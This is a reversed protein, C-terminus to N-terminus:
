APCHSRVVEFGCSEYLPRLTEKSTLMVYPTKHLYAQNLATHVLASIPQDAALDAAPHMDNM